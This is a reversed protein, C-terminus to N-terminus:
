QSNSIFIDRKERSFELKGALCDRYYIVEKDTVGCYRENMHYIASYCERVLESSLEMAESINVVSCIQYKLEERNITANLYKDLLELIVHGINNELLKM